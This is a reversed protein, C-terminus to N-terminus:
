ENGRPEELPLLPATTHLLPPLPGTQKKDVKAKMQQALAGNELQLQNFAQGMRQGWDHWKEIKINQDLIVTDQIGSHLHAQQNEARLRENDLQLGTIRSELDKVKLASYNAGRLAAIATLIGALSVGFATILAALEGSTM